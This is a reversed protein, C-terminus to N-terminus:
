SEHSRDRVIENFLFDLRLNNNGFLIQIRFRWIVWWMVYCVGEFFDKLRKSLRINNFWVLWDSYSIFDHVELEWWRAVKIMLQRTLHCSFLLHSTSEVTIAKPLLSDDIFCRALKVSFEGSSDLRWIWRDSIQPFVISSTSEILLKLQEEEIGGRPPRKFSSILSSDRLKTAVSSQKDLDLYYLRPYLAKLPSDALWIDDWFSTLEGNGVNKKYALINKWRILSLRKDSNEVGNIFKRRTAKM